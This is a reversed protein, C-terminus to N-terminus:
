APLAQLTNLPWRPQAGADLNDRWGLRLREVGVWAVMVANDSCLRSPPAVFSFGRSLAAEALGARVSANSAVGGAVVLLCAEPFTNRMMDIAHAARDALVDVVARQFSAGIDSRQQM